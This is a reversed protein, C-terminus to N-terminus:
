GISITSALKLINEIPTILFMPFCKLAPEDNSNPYKNSFCFVTAYHVKLLHYKQFNNDLKDILIQLIIMGSIFNNHNFIIKLYPSEIGLLSVKADKRPM